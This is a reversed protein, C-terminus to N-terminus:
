LRKQSDPTALYWDVTEQLGQKLPTLKMEPFLDRLVSGSCTKATQGDSYDKNYLLSTTGNKGFACLILFAVERILVTEYTTLIVMETKYETHHHWVDIDLSLLRMCVRAVDMSYIFQRRALGSGRLEFTTDSERLEAARRILAPIVHADETRFNDDPGYINTPCICMGRTVNGSNEAEENCLRVHVDMMRKAYAYGYNSEHPPGDHMDSETMPKRVSNVALKDPFVCTSLCFIGRIINRKPNFTETVVNLNMAVNDEFMQLNHSQNKYLGGVAAALHIVYDPKHVDFLGAVAEKNKLDCDKSSLFVFEYGSEYTSSVRKIASGVLGTGGTVLVKKM